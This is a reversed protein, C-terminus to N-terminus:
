EQIEKKKKDCNNINEKRRKQLGCSAEGAMEKGEKGGRKNKKRRKTMIIGIKRERDRKVCKYQNRKMGKKTIERIGRDRRKIVTIGIKKKEQCIQM